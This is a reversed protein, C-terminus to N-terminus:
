KIGNSNRCHYKWYRWRFIMLVKQNIHQRTSSQSPEVLIWKSHQCQIVSQKDSWQFTIASLRDGNKEAAAEAANMLLGTAVTVDHDKHLISRIEGDNLCSWLGDACLFTTDGEILEVRNSLDIKPADKGSICTYIKNKYPHTTMDEKTVVGRKYM